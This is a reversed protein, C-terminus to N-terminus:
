RLDRTYTTLAVDTLVKVHAAMWLRTLEMEPVCVEALIQRPGGVFKPGM